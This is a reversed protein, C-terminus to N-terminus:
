YTEFQSKWFRKLFGARAREIVLKDRFRRQLTFVHQWFQTLIAKMHYRIFAERLFQVVFKKGAIQRLKDYQVFISM